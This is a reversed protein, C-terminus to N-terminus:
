KFVTNEEVYEINYPDTIVYLSGEEKSKQPNYYITLDNSVVKISDGLKRGVSVTCYLEASDGTVRYPYIGGNIQKNFEDVSSRVHKLTIIGFAHNTSKQIRVVVGEFLVNNNLSDNLKITEEGSKQNYYFISCFFGILLIAYVLYRIINM